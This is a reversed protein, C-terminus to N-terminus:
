TPSNEGGGDGTEERPEERPVDGLLLSTGPSWACTETVAQEALHSAREYMQEQRVWHVQKVKWCIM